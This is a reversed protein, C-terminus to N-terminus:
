EEARKGSFFKLFYLIYSNQEDLVVVFHIWVFNFFLFM